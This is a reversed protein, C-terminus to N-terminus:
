YGKFGTASCHVSTLSTGSQVTFATNAAVQLPTNFTHSYGGGGGNNPLDVITTAGDNLTLTSATTGADNRTCTLDTIYIKVSAGQAGMGTCTTASTSATLTIACRLQNERNAYPSTVQKGTLDFFSGTLNGTTAAAPESSQADGAGYHANAPVAAASAGIGWNAATHPDVNGIWVAGTQAALPNGSNTATTNAANAIAKEIAVQSCTTTTAPLTCPADAKAGPTLFAGDVGAGAAISGAAYAGSSVAGSALTVAGGSGGGGGSTGTPLGSGGVTNVSTTGGTSICNLTTVGSPITFAFWGSSAPIPQDAATAPVGNVNCFAPNAGTNSVVVVAGTPLTGSSGGATIPVSLPTGRAGSTSPSFGSLSATANVCAKGTTDVTVIGLTPISSTWPQLTQNGCSAVVIVGDVGQAQAVPMLAFFAAAYVYCAAALIRIIKM